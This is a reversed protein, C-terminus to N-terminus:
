PRGLAPEVGAPGVVGARVLTQEAVEAIQTQGQLSPHFWDPSLFTRGFRLRGLAGDDWTCRPREACVAHLVVDFQRRRADTAARDAQRGFVPPCIGHRAWVARAAAVPRGLDGMRGLDPVSLVLLRARPSTRDLVGLARELDARFRPVPTMSAVDRTCVDNVGILVVVLDAQTAAARVAQRTLASAKSGSVSLNQGVPQAGTRRALRQLLSRVRPDTGTAWATTPCDGPRGCSSFGQTYSDGLATITLPRPPSPVPSATPAARPVPPDTRCGGLLLLAALLLGSTPTPRM